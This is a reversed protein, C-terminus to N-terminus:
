ASVAAWLRSALAESGTDKVKAKTQRLLDERGIQAKCFSEPHSSKTTSLSSFVGLRKKAPGKLPSLPMIKNM